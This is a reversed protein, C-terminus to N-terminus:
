HAAATGPATTWRGACGSRGTPPRRRTLPNISIREAGLREFRHVLRNLQGAPRGIGHDEVTLAVLADPAQAARIQVTGGNRNHNDHSPWRATATPGSPATACWGKSCRATPRTPCTSPSYRRTARTANLCRRMAHHPPWCGAMPWFCRSLVMAAATRRTWCRNCCPSILWSWWCAVLVGGARWWCAVLVAQGAYFRRSYGRQVPRPRLARWAPRQAHRAAGQALSAM